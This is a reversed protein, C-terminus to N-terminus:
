TTMRPSSGRIWAANGLARSALMSWRTLGPPSSNSSVRRAARKRKTKRARRRGETNSRSNRRLKAFFYERFEDYSMGKKAALKHFVKGIEESIRRKLDDYDIPEISDDMNSKYSIWGAHAIRRRECHSSRLTHTRRLASRTPPLSIRSAAKFNTGSTASSTMPGAVEPRVRQSMRAASASKPNVQM